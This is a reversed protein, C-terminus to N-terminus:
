PQSLQGAGDADSSLRAVCRARDWIEVGPYLSLLPKGARVASQDSDCEAIEVGCIRNTDNLLFIRYYAM